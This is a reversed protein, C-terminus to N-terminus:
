NQVDMPALQYPIQSCFLIRIKTKFGHSNQIVQTTSTSPLSSSEFTLNTSDAATPIESGDNEQRTEKETSKEECLASNDKPVVMRRPAVNPTSARAQATGNGRNLSPFSSVRTALNRKLSIEKRPRKSHPQSILSDEQEPPVDGNDLKSLRLEWPSSAQQIENPHHMTAEVTMLKSYSASDSSLGGDTVMIANESSDSSSSSGSDLGNHLSEPANSVTILPIEDDTVDGPIVINHSPRKRFKSSKFGILSGLKKARKIKMYKQKATKKNIKKVKTSTGPTELKNFKKWFELYVISYTKSCSAIYVLPILVVCLALLFALLYVVSIKLYRTFRNRFNVLCGEQYITPNADHSLGYHFYNKLINKHLCPYLVESNCCSFPTDQFIKIQKRM